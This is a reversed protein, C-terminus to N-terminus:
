DHIKAGLRLALALGAGTLVVSILSLAAITNMAGTQLLSVMLSYGARSLRAMALQDFVYPIVSSAVGVGIGALLAVPDLLAPAASALGIPTVVVVAVLGKSPRTSTTGYRDALDTM